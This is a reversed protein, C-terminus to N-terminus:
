RLDFPKGSVELDGDIEFGPAGHDTPEVRWGDDQRVFRMVLDGAFLGIGTRLCLDMHHLYSDGDKVFRGKWPRFEREDTRCQEIESCQPRDENELALESTWAHGQPAVSVRYNVSCDALKFRGFATLIRIPVDAAGVEFSCGGTIAPHERDHLGPCPAGAGDLGAVPKADFLPFPRMRMVTELQGFEQPPVGFFGALKWAGNSRVLAIDAKQGSDDEVIVTARPGQAEIRAIAPQEDEDWGGDAVVDFAARLDRECTGSGGGAIESAQKQAPRTMQECLAAMDDSAFAEQLTHVATAAPGSPEPPPDDSSCGVATVALGAVVLMTELSRGRRM